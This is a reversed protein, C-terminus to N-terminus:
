QEILRKLNKIIEDIESETCKIEKTYSINSEINAIAVTIDEYIAELDDKISQMMNIYDKEKTNESKVIEKDTIDLLRGNIIEILNKTPVNTYSKGFEARVTDQLNLHKIHEYCEKRTYEVGNKIKEKPTTLLFILNNSLGGKFPVNKPLPSDDGLIETKSLGEYFVMREYPINNADMDAKLQGLTEAATEFSTKSHTNANVVTVIRAEM